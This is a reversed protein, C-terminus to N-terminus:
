IETKKDDIHRKKNLLSIYSLIIALELGNNILVAESTLTVIIYIWILNVPFKNKVGKITLQYLKFLLFGLLLIGIFGFQGIYYSFGADGLVSMELGNEGWYFSIKIFEYVKSNFKGSIHSAFTGFGSGFPFCKSALLFSGRYLEERPSSPFSLYLAVKDYIFYVTFIIVVIGLILIPVNKVNFNSFNLLSKINKVKPFLYKICIFLGVIAIGKTRMTLLIIILIMAEYLYKERPDKYNKSEVFSLLLISSLVLFTPHSFLFQYPRIGYRIENQSLGIDVFVSMIGLGFIVIICYKIIKDFMDNHEDVLIKDIKLERLLLLTVPFKLFGAIDRIIAGAFDMYGFCLNGLLGIVTVMTIPIMIRFFIKSLKKKKYFIHFLGLVMIIIEIIEDWYNFFDPLDIINFLVNQFILFLIFINILKNKM